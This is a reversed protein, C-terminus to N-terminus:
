DSYALRSLPDNKRNANSFYRTGILRFLSQRQLIDDEPIHRQTPRTNVSTEFSRIAEMKLTSFDALSSGTRAPPQLRCLAVDWFVVNKVTVATFAEFRVLTQGPFNQSLVKLKDMNGEMWMKEFENNAIM